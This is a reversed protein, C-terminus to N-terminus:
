IKTNIKHECVNEHYAQTDNRESWSEKSTTQVSEALAVGTDGKIVECQRVARRQIQERRKGPRFGFATSSVPCREMNSALNPWLVITAREATSMRWLMLGRGKEVAWIKCFVTQFHELCASCESKHVWTKDYSLEHSVRTKKAVECFQSFHSNAKDYGSTEGDTHFLKAGVPRIKM